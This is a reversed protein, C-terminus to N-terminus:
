ILHSFLGLHQAAWEEDSNVDRQKAQSAEPKQISDPLTRTQTVSPDKQFEQKVFYNSVEM